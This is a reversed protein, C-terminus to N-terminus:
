RSSKREGDSVRLHVDVFIDNYFSNRILFSQRSILWTVFTVVTRLSVVAESITDREEDRDFAGRRGKGVLGGHGATAVGIPHRDHM